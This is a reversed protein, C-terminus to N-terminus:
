LLLKSLRYFCSAFLKLLSVCVAVFLHLLTFEGGALLKDFSLVFALLMILFLLM